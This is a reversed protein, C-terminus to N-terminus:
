IEDYQVSIGLKLGSIITNCRTILIPEIDLINVNGLNFDFNYETESHHKDQGTM